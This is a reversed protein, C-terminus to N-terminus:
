HSIGMNHVGALISMATGTSQPLWWMRRIVRNNSRQMKLAAYDMVLPSAQLAVYIAPSGAFPKMFPNAEVNGSEVSRRTSYADFAAAGSSAVSLMMWARHSPMSEVGVRRLPQNPDAEPIRITSFTQGNLSAPVLKASNAPTVAAPLADFSASGPHAITASQAHLAPAVASFAATAIATFFASKRIFSRVKNSFM